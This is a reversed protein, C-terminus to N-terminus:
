NLFQKFDVYPNEKLLEKIESWKVLVSPAGM